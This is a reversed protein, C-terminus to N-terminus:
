GVEQGAFPDYGSGGAGNSAARTKEGGDREHQKGERLKVAERKLWKVFRYCTKSKRAKHDFDLWVEDVPVGRFEPHRKMRRLFDKDCLEDGGRGYRGHFDLLDNGEQECAPLSNNESNYKNRIPPTPSFNDQPSNKDQLCNKSDSFYSEPCNEAEATGESFNDQPSFNDQSSNKALPEKPARTGEAESFNDEFSNKVGLGVLPRVKRGGLHEIWRKATLSSKAKSIAAYSITTESEIKHNSPRALGTGEDLFSCYCVYLRFEVHTLKDAASRRRVEVLDLM